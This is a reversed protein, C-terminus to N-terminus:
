RHLQRTKKTSLLDYLTQYLDAPKLPKSIYENMGAKLCTERDGQIAQATVAIIPLDRLNLDHRIAKTASIGDLIPMEIDMLVADFGEANSHLIDMAQQGNDASIVSIGAKRLIGRAVQQNIVNDEVLLVRLGRLAKIMEDSNHTPNETITEPLCRSIADFLRSESVPKGLFSDVYDSGHHNSFIEDRQFSSVLFILPKKHLDTSCKIDKAADLGSKLPMKYDLLLIDFPQGEAEAQQVKGIASHADSATEINGVIKEATKKLINLAIPNDDVILLNLHQCKSGHQQIRNDGIQSAELKATFAFTTGKAAVSEVTLEGHMMAVLLNCIHLGFDSPSNQKIPASSKLKEQLQKLQTQEIGTGHDTVSFKIVLTDSNKELAEASVIVEHCGSYQLANKVLQSIIHSIRTADGRMFRPTGEKIDFIINSKEHLSSNEFFRALHELLQELDFHNNDLIIKGTELKAYDFVQNFTQLLSNAASQISNIYSKQLDNISTDELLHSLGIIANMPTRIEHSMSAMFQSKTHSAEEAQVRAELLENQAIITNTIDSCNAVCRTFTGHEDPEVFICRCSVWVVEGNRCLLRHEFSCHPQRNYRSTQLKDIVDAADDPHLLYNSFTDLTGPRQQYDYGLMRWFGRSFHIRNDRIQWDWLGDRSAEMAYHYRKDREQLKHLLQRRCYADHILAGVKKGLALQNCSLNTTAIQWVAILQGNSSIPVLHFDRWQTAQFKELSQNQDPNLQPQELLSSQALLQWNQLHNSVLWIALEQCDIQSGLLQLSLPLASDDTEGLLLEFHAQLADQEPLQAETQTALAQELQAIRAELAKENGPM